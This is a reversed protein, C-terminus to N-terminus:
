PKPEWHILDLLCNPDLPGRVNWLTVAFPVSVLTLASLRHNRDLVFHHDDPLAYTPAAFEVIGNQRKFSDAYQEIDARREESLVAIGKPVDTLRLPVADPDDYAVEKGARGIYWPMFCRRLEAPSSLTVAEIPWEEQFFREWNFGVRIAAHFTTFFNGPTIVVKAAM